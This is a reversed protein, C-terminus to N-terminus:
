CCRNYNQYGRRLMAKVTRTRVRRSAPNAPSTGIRNLRRLENQAERFIAFLRRLADFAATRLRAIVTM